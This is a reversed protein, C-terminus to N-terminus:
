GRWACSATKGFDAVAGSSQSSSIDRLTLIVGCAQGSEDYVPSGDIAADRRQGSATLCQAVLESPPADAHWAQKIFHRIANGADEPFCNRMLQGPLEDSTWGFASQFAQNALLIDGDRQVLLLPASFHQLVAYLAGMAPSLLLTDDAENRCSVTKPPPQNRFNKVCFFNPLVCIEDLSIDCANM